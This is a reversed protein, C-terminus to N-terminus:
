YFEYVVSNNKRSDVIKIFVHVVNMNVNSECLIGYIQINQGYTYIAWM